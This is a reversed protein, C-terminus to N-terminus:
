ACEEQVQQESGEAVRGPIDHRQHEGPIPGRGPRGPSPLCAIDTYVKSVALEEPRIMKDMLRIVLDQPGRMGPVGERFVENYIIHNANEIGIHVNRDKLEVYIPM